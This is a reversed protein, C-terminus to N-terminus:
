IIFMICIVANRAKTVANIEAAQWRWGCLGLPSLDIDMKLEVGFVDNGGAAGDVLALGLLVGNVIMGFLYPRRKTVGETEFPM